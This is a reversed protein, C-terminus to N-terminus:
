ITTYLSLSLSLSSVNVQFAKVLIQRVSQGNRNHAILEHLDHHQGTRPASLRM